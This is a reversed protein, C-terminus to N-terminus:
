ISRRSLQKFIYGVIIFASLPQFQGLYHKFLAALMLFLLLQKFAQLLFLSHMSFSTLLAPQLFPALLPMLWQLAAPNLPGLVQM